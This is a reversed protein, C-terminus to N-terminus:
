WWEGDRWSAVAALVLIGLLAVTEALFPGVIFLLVSSLVILATGVPLFWRRRSKFHTWLAYGVIVWFGVTVLPATVAVWHRWPGELLNREWILSLPSIVSVLLIGIATRVPLPGIAQRAM